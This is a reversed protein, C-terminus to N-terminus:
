DIGVLVPKDALQGGGSGCQSPRLLKGLTDGDVCRQRKRLDLVDQSFRLTEVVGLRESELRLICVAQQVGLVCVFSCHRESLFTCGDPTPALWWGFYPSVIMVVGFGTCRMAMTPVPVM